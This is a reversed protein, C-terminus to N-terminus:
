LCVVVDGRPRHASQNYVAKEDVNFNNCLLNRYDPFPQFYREMHNYRSFGNGGYLYYALRELRGM